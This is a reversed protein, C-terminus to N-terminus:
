EEALVRAVAASIEAANGGGKGGRRVFTAVTYRAKGTNDFILGAFWGDQEEMPAGARGGTGTKGGISWGVSELATAIGAATGRKVTDALADMIQKATDEEVMRTPSNCGLDRESTIRHTVPSCVMGNNGVAQFFQSVQLPTVTMYSEGISLASAWDANKLAALRASGAPPHGGRNFGYRRLDAMVAPTGVAKRLALAAERGESDSGGVLMEHLDVPPKALKRDWWSAALFVESLALPLVPTSIDLKSPHSAAFAALMPSDVYQVVTVAELHRSQMAELAVRSATDCDPHHALADKCGSAAWGACALTLISTAIKTQM